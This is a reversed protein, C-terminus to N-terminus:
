SLTKIRRKWQGGRKELNDLKFVVDRVGPITRIDKEVKRVLPLLNDMEEEDEELYKRGYIQRLIGRIYVVGNSTGFDVRSTDIWRRVLVSRVFANIRYDEISM